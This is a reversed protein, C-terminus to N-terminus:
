GMANADLAATAINCCRLKTPKLACHFVYGAIESPCSPMQHSNMAAENKFAVVWVFFPCISQTHINKAKALSYTLLRLCKLLSLLTSLYM